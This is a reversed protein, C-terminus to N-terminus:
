RLACRPGHKPVCLVNAGISGAEFRTMKRLTEAREDLAYFDYDAYTSLLDILDNPHTNMPRLTELAMEMLIVPPVQQELMRRAGRVFLMEAGEIDVKILDIHGIRHRSIYDDATSVKIRLPTSKGRVTPSFSAHGSPQGSFLHIDTESVEDGLAFNNLRVRSANANLRVNESLEAFTSPVPEFAHVEGDTGCLTQFLTTYWGINAGVDFCVSGQKVFQRVVATCYPEYTGLFYIEDDVWDRFGVRLHRGDRTETVVCRGTDVRSLRKALKYVRGKGKDIPSNFTYQRVMRLWLPVAGVHDRGLLPTRTMPLNKKGFVIRGELRLTKAFFSQLPVM